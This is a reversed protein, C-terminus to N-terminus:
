GALAMGVALVGGCIGALSCGWFVTLAALRLVSRRMPPATPPIRPEAASLGGVRRQLTEAAHVTLNRALQARMREAPIVRPQVARRESHRAVDASARRIADDTKIGTIAM